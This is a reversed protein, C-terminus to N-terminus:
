KVRRVKGDKIDKISEALQTVFEVDIEAKKKLEIYEAEPITVTKVM